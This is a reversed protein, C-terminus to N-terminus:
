SAVATQGKVNNLVNEAKKTFSSFLECVGDAMQNELSQIFSTDKIAGGLVNRIIGWGPSDMGKTEAMTRVLTESISEAILKTLERCDTLAQALRQPKSAIFSSLFKAFLGTIGFWRLIKEVMPEVFSQAIASWSQGFLSTLIDGLGENILGREDLKRVEAMVELFVANQQKKSLSSFYGRSEVIVSLRSKVLRTEILKRKRIEKEQLLNKRIKKELM